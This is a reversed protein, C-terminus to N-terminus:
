GEDRTTLTLVHIYGTSGFVEQNDVNIRELLKWGYKPDLARDTTIVICGQRCTNSLWESWEADLVLAGVEPSFRKATFATSYAFVIDVNSLVTSFQQASGMYLTLVTSGTVHPTTSTCFVGQQIGEQLLSLARDHLLSAVEIGDIHWVYDPSGRSLAAYLVIRGLGSGIDVFQITNSNNNDNYNQYRQLAVDL